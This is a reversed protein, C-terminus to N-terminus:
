LVHSIGEAGTHDLVLGTSVPVPVAPNTAIVRTPDAFGQTASQTTTTTSYDSSGSLSISQSGTSQVSNNSSKKVTGGVAGGVVAGIVILLIVFITIVGNRTRWFSPKSTPAATTYAPSGIKEGSSTEAIAPVFPATVPAPYPIQPLPPVPNRM